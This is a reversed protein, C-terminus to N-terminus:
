EAAPEPRMRLVRAPTGAVIAFPPVDANVLSHAGIIADRGVRVGNLVTVGAGIWVNDGIELGEASQVGQAIVPVDSREFHHNTAGLYCNAAVLVSKGLSLRERTAIRCHSGVNTGEGIVLSGDKAVLICGRGILVHDGVDIGGSEGRADLVVFDDIAAHSGIRIKAPHRLTLGRGVLTGQGLRGLLFPLLTRRLAYGLAGPMPLALMTVLEYLLLDSWRSSGVMMRRYSELPSAASSGLTEQLPSIPPKTVGDSLRIM